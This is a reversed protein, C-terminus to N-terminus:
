ATLIMFIKQQHTVIEKNGSNGSLYVKISHETEQPKEDTKEEAM